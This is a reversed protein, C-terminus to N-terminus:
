EKVSRKFKRNLMRKFQHSYSAGNLDFFFLVANQTSSFFEVYRERYAIQHPTPESIRMIQCSPNMLKFKEFKEQYSSAFWYNINNKKSYNYAIELLATIPLRSKGRYNPAVVLAGMERFESLSTNTPFDINWFDLIRCPGRPDLLRLSGILQEKHYVAFTVSNPYYRKLIQLYDSPYGESSLIENSFSIITAEEEASEVINTRYNKIRLLSKFAFKLLKEM